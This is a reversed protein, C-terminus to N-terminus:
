VVKDKEDEEDIKSVNMKDSGPILKLVLAGRHQSLIKTVDYPTMGQTSKGNIEHIVDDVHIIGQNFLIM